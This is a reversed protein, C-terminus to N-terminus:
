VGLKKLAEEFTDAPTSDPGVQIEYVPIGQARYYALLPQTREQFTKLKSQIAALSDDDRGTRDGGTNRQIRTRVTAPSCELSVIARIDVLESTDRAQGLHRPLGNLLLLDESTIQGHALFAELIRKGIHFTENELLRGKTLADHIVGLDQSDFMDAWRHGSAVQRLNEGFDFHFCRKAGFGSSQFAEGLPSKGAGTPGLLLIAQPHSVTM